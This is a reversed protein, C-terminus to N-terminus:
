ESGIDKQRDFGKKESPKFFFQLLRHYFLITEKKRIQSFASTTQGGLFM